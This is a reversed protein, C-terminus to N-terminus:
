SKTSIARSEQFSIFLENAKSVGELNGLVIYYRMMDTDKWNTALGENVKWKRSYEIM